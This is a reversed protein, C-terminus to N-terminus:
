RLHKTFHVHEATTIDCSKDVPAHKSSNYSVPGAAANKGCFRLQEDTLVQFCVNYAPM